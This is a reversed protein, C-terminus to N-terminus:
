RHLSRAILKLVAEALIPSVSNGIQRFSHWKTDDFVFWDPFGQLRAAERPTIVRPETPHIPRLAQFSGRDPGTGARLTPCFGKRHLRVARSPGDVAGEALESFRAIVAATHRTGICGSVCNYKKLQLIANPEGIGDPVEDFIKSWFAGEPRCTLEQWGQEGTQRDPSVSPDLGRLATEVIVNDIHPPPNFDAGKISDVYEPLYGLFFVRERNTAAGFSSAKLVLPDLNLYGDLRAFANKRVQAFQTDLVGLVNELLYFWPRIEAVLRLFHDFLHNRLDNQSRRGIRSFGQCPPGGIIGHLTKHKMGAWDLLEDGRLQAIDTEIHRCNPFNAAFTQVMRSDIDVAAAIHFGARAAGLTLGGVGCFLDIVAPHEPSNSGKQRNDIVM